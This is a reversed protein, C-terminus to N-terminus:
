KESKCSKKNIEQDKLTVTVIDISMTVTGSLKTFM